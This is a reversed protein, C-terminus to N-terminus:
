RTIAGPHARQDLPESTTDDGFFQFSVIAAMYVALALLIGTIFLRRFMLSDFRLHMFMAGVTAFKIVMLTLLVAIVPGKVDTVYPITVEFATLLALVLAVQVYRVNSPHAHGATETTATGSM